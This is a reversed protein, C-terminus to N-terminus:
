NMATLCDGWVSQKRRKPIAEVQLVTSSSKLVSRCRISVVIRYNLALLLEIQLELPLSLGDLARFLDHISPRRVPWGGYCPVVIIIRGLPRYPTALCVAFSIYSCQQNRIWHNTRQMRSLVSSYIGIDRHYEHM